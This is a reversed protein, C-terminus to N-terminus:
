ANGFVEGGHGLGKELFDDIALDRGTDFVFILNADGEVINLRLGGNVQQDYRFFRYGAHAFGHGVVLGHQAVEQEGGSRECALESEGAAEAEDDVMSRVGAFAHRVQM